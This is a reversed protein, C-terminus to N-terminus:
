DPVVSPRGPAAEDTLATRHFAGTDLARPAQPRQASGLDAFPGFPHGGSPAGSRPNGDQGSPAGPAGPLRHGDGCARCHGGSRHAGSPAEASAHGAKKVAAAIRARAAGHEKAHAAGDPRSSADTGPRPAGHAASHPAAVGPVLRGVGHDDSPVDPLRLHAVGAAGATKAVTRDVTGGVKRVVHGGDAAADRGREGLYAVPRRGAERVDGTVAGPTGATPRGGAFRFHRLTSLGDLGSAGGAADSVPNWRDARETEGAATSGGATGSGATGTEAGGNRAAYASQNFSSLAIWGAFAFGAIVAVRVLATGLARRRVDPSSAGHRIPQRRM